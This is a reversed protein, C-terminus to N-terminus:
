MHFLEGHRLVLLDGPKFFDRPTVAQPDKIIDPIDLEVLIESLLKSQPDDAKGRLWDLIRDGLIHSEYDSPERPFTWKQTAGIRYFIEQALGICDIGAGKADLSIGLAKAEESDFKDQYYQQFPTGIWSLAEKRLEEAKVRDDFY